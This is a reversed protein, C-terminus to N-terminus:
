ANCNFNLPIVLELIIYHRYLNNQDQKQTLRNVADNILACIVYNVFSTNKTTYDYTSNWYLMLSQMQTLQYVVDSILTLIGDVHTNPKIMFVAHATNM